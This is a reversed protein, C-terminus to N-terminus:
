RGLLLTVRSPAESESLEGDGRLIEFFGIQEAFPTESFDVLPPEM